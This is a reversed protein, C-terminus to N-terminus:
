PNIFATPLNFYADFSINTASALRYLESPFSIPKPVPLKVLLLITNDSSIPYLYNSFFTLL